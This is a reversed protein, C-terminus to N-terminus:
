ANEKRYVLESDDGIYYIGEDYLNGLSDNILVGKWKTEHIDDALKEILLVTRTIPQERIPEGGFCFQVIDFPKFQKRM